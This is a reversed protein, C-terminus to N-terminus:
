EGALLLIQARFKEGEDDDDEMSDTDMRGEWKVKYINSEVHTSADFKDILSTEVITKVNDDRFRVYAYNYQIMTLVFVTCFLWFSILSYQLCNTCSTCKPRRVADAFLVHPAHPVHPM